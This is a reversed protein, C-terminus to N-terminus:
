ITPSLHDSAPSTLNISADLVMPEYQGVHVQQKVKQAEAEQGAFHINQFSSGLIMPLTNSLFEVLSRTPAAIRLSLLLQVWFILWSVSNPLVSSQLATTYGAVEIRPEATHPGEKPPLSIAESARGPLWSSVRM